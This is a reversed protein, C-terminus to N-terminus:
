SAEATFAKAGLLRQGLLVAVREGSAFALACASAVAPAVDEPADARHVIVGCDRAAGARGQRDAGAM